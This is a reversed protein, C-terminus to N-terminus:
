LGESLKRFVDVGHIGLATACAVASAGARRMRM